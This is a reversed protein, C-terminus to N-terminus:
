KVYWHASIAVGMGAPDFGVFPEPMHYYGVDASLSLQPVSALSFEGGVFVRAGMTNASETQDTFILDTRSSHALRAAVGLYPRVWVSDTVRDNLAFLLAPAIDTVSARSLMDISSYSYRSV